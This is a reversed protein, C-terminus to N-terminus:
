GLLASNELGSVGEKRTKEITLFVHLVHAATTCFLSTLPLLEAMITMKGLNAQPFNRHLMSQVIHHFSLQSAMGM